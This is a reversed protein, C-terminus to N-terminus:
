YGVLLVAPTMGKELLFQKDAVTKLVEGDRYEYIITRYGSNNGYPIYRRKV